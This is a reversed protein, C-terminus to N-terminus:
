VFAIKSQDVHTTATILTIVYPLVQEHTLRLEHKSAALPLHPAAAPVGHQHRVM